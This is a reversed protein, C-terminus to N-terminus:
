IREIHAIPWTKDKSFYEYWGDAKSWRIKTQGLTLELYDEDFYFGTVLGVRYTWHGGFATHICLWEGKYCDLKGIGAKTLREDLRTRLQGGTMFTANLQARFTEGLALLEPDM